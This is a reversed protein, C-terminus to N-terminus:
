FGPYMELRDGVFVEQASDVIVGTSYSERVDILIVQGIRMWPVKKDPEETQNGEFFSLGERRQYIFFRNGMRVGQKAGKNIFVYDFEGLNSQTDVRDIVKAVLEKDATLPRVYKLQREYPILLDGRQIERWSQIIEGTLYHKDSIKDTVKLSGLVHYKHGLTKDKDNPDQISGIPRVIAFIDGKKVEKSDFQVRDEEPISEKEKDSYSQSGFGLLVQDFEALMVAQKPSGVIRGAYKLEKTEVFGGVALHLDNRKDSQTVIRRLGSSPQDMLVRPKLYVIDGPYIWHPNTIHPNFSWLRPWEFSDGLYRDSLDYLTDGKDVQHYDKSGARTVGTVEQAAGGSPALLLLASLAILLAGARGTLPAADRAGQPHHLLWM